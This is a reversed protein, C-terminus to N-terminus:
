RHGSGFHIEVFDKRLREIGRNALMAFDTQVHHDILVAFRHHVYPASDGVRPGAAFDVGLREERSDEKASGRTVEDRGALRTTCLSWFRDILQGM